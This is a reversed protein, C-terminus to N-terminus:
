ARQASFQSEIAASAPADAGELEGRALLWFGVWLASAAAKGAETPVALIAAQTFLWLIMVRSSRWAGQVALGIFAPFAVIFDRYWCYPSSAISVLLLLPLHQQWNWHLRHRTWYWAFFVAGFICPVYQLSTHQEGFIMRLVAGAGCDTSIASGYIDHFYHASAPDWLVAATTFLTLMAAAGALFQWRRERLTWLVLALLVLWLLHPKAGFGITCLGALFWRQKRLLWLIATLSFLMLPTIQGVNESVNLPIFTVMVVLAIWSSRWSGGFYRWLALASFLDLTLSGVLWLLQATAFPLLGCATVIPLTWMPCFMVAPHVFPWGVAHQVPAVLRPDYPNRHVLFLRAASWYTIFDCRVSLRALANLSFTALPICCMACWLLTLATVPQLTRM